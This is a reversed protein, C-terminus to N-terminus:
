RERDQHDIKEQGQDHLDNKWSGQKGVLGSYSVRKRPRAGSGITVLCSLLKAFETLFVSVPAPGVAGHNSSEHIFFRMLPKNKDSKPCFAAAANTKRGSASAAIDAGSFDKTM